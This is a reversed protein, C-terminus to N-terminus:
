DKKETLGSFVADADDVVADTEYRRFFADSYFNGTRVEPPVFKMELTFSASPPDRKKVLQPPDKWM